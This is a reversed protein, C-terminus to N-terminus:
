HFSQPLALDRKFIYTKYDSRFPEYIDEQILTFGHKIYWEWNCECDTWLYLNKWGESKLRECILELIKSGAGPKRSVFLSLKIDDDNMLALTREDMMTLYTKSMGSAKKWEEPFRQSERSFWEDVLCNDGKRAFFAACLIDNQAGEEVLQFRYDNEWINNRVIYEVNFRKFEKDGVPPFWLPEVVDVVLPLNQMKFPELRMNDM